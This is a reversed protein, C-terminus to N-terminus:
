RRTTGSMSGRAAEFVPDPIGSAEDAILLINESHKGALAEPQEAKSTAFSVFSEDPNGRHRIQDVQIEFLEQL